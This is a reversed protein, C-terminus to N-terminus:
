LQGAIDALCNRRCTSTRQTTALTRRSGARQIGLHVLLARACSAVLAPASAPLLFSLAPGTHAAHELVSVLPRGVVDAINRLGDLGDDIALSNLRDGRKNDAEGSTFCAVAARTELELGEEGLLSRLRLLEGGHQPQHGLSGRQGSAL